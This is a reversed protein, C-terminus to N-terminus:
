IALEEKEIVDKIASVIRETIPHMPGAPAGNRTPNSYHIKDKEGSIRAIWFDKPVDLGEIQCKSGPTYLKALLSLLNRESLTVKLLSRDQEVRM